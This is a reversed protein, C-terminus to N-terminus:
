QGLTTLHSSSRIVLNCGHSLSLPDTKQSVTKLPQLLRGQSQLHLRQTLTPIHKGKLKHLLSSPLHKFHM